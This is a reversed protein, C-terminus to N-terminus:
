RGRYQSPYIEGIERTTLGAAEALALPVLSCEFMAKGFGSGTEAVLMDVFDQQREVFLAAARHFLGARAAPPLAAWDPQAKTAADIAATVDDATADAVQAITDGTTSNDTAFTKENSAASWAGGIFMERAPVKTDGSGRKLWDLM